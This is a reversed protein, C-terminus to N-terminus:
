EQPVADPIKDLVGDLDDKEVGIGHKELLEHFGEKEFGYVRVSLLEAISQPNFGNNVCLYPTLFEFKGDTYTIIVGEMPEGNFLTQFGSGTIGTHCEIEYLDKVFAEKDSIVGVKDATLGNEGFTFRAFDISEIESAEHLLTYEAPQVQVYTFYIVAALCGCIILPLLLIISILSLLLRIM